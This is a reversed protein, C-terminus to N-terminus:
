TVKQLPKRLLLSFSTVDGLWKVIRKTLAFRTNTLREHWVIEYGIQQMRRTLAVDDIGSEVHYEALMGVTASNLEVHTKDGASAGSVIRSLRRAVAKPLDSTQCFAKFAYYECRLLVKAMTSTAKRSTPDFITFLLGNPNLRSFAITLVEEFNQLHHLASSFVILDFTLETHALFNAIESCVTQPELGLQQCKARFINQLDPSIDALIVHINRKLLKLSINGSGGCADLALIESAPKGILAVVRDLTAELDRQTDPDTVCTETLDYQRATKAYFERNAEAIKNYATSPQWNNM